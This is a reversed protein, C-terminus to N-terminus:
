DVGSDILRNFVPGLSDLHKGKEGGPFTILELPCDVASGLFEQFAAGFQKSLSEETVIFIRSPRLESVLAPLHVDGSLSREFDRAMIIDYDTSKKEESGPQLHLSEAGFPAMEILPQMAVSDISADSWDVLIGLFSREYFVASEPIPSCEIPPTNAATNPLRPM